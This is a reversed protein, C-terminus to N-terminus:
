LQLFVLLYDQLETGFSPLTGAQWARGRIFYCWYNSLPWNGTAKARWNSRCQKPITWAAGLFSRRPLSSHTLSSSHIVVKLPFYFWCFVLTSGRGVGGTGQSAPNTIISSTLLACFPATLEWGWSLRGQALVWWQTDWSSWPIWWPIRPEFQGSVRIWVMGAPGCSKGPVMEPPQLCLFQQAEAGAAWLRGRMWGPATLSCWQPATVEASAPCTHGALKPLAQTGPMQKGQM